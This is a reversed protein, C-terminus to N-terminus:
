RITIGPRTVIYGNKGVNPDAPFGCSKLDAKTIPPDLQSITALNVGRVNKDTVCLWVFLKGTRAYIFLGIKTSM